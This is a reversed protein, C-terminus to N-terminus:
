RSAEATVGGILVMRMAEEVSLQTEELDSKHLYLTYGGIQYSMPFYVAVIDEGDSGFLRPNLHDETVFGVLRASNFRWLVVRKLDRGKGGAPLFRTFDKLAGFVTKVIPIRALLSEGFRFLRRVIYADVIVGVLLILVFAVILGLGPWYHDRPLVVRLPGSLISEATTALWFVVYITLAVPLVAALGKLFTNWLRRM